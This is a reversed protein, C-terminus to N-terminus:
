VSASGGFRMRLQKGGDGPDVAEVSVEDALARILHFGWGRIPGEGAMQAALDPPQTPPAFPPGSDRVVVELADPDARFWIQVPREGELGHGHTIANLCAEGVATAVDEAREAHGHERAFRGALAAVELEAGERSPVELAWTVPPVLLLLTVDDGLRGSAVLPQLPAMLEAALRESRAVPERLLGRVREFAAMGDADGGEILGDSYLLLSAGPALPWVQETFTLDPEVGLPLSPIVEMEEGGIIPPLHGASAVHIEGRVTDLIAYVVTVFAMPPLSSCLLRNVATLVAAPRDHLPAHSRILSVTSAMLLAAPLGKSAADGLALGFRGEGLDILDYFDGGVEKAPHLRATLQWGPPLQVQRPLMGMQISRAAELDREMERIEREVRDQMLNISGVLEGVEDQDTVAFRDFLAPRVGAALMRLRDAVALLDTGIDTAILYAVGASLLVPPLYAALLNPVALERPVAIFQTINFVGLALVILVLRLSIPFRQDDPLARMGLSAIAPRLVRRSITFLLLSLLLALLLDRMMSYLLGAAWAAALNEGYFVARHVLILGVSITLLFASAREPFRIARLAAATVEARDAQRALAAFLPRLYLAALGDLLLGVLIAGGWLVVKVEIRGADPTRGFVVYNMLHIWAVGGATLGVFLLRLRWRM